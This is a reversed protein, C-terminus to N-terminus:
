SEALTEYKNGRRIFSIYASYFLTWMISAFVLNTRAVVNSFMRSFFSNDWSEKWPLQFLNARFFIHASRILFLYEYTYEDAHCIFEAWSPPRFRRLLALSFSRTLFEACFLRLLILFIRALLARLNERTLDGRFLSVLSSLFVHVGPSIAAPFRLSPFCFYFTVAGPGRRPRSYFKIHAFHAVWNARLGIFLPCCHGVTFASARARSLLLRPFRPPKPPRGVRGGVAWRRWRELWIFCWQTRLRRSKCLDIDSAENLLNDSYSHSRTESSARYKKVISLGIMNVYSVNEVKLTIELM